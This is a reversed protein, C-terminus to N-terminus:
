DVVIIPAVFQRGADIVADYVERSLERLDSDTAYSVGDYSREAYDQMSHEAATRAQEAIITLQAYTM